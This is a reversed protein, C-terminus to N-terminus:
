CCNTIGANFDGTNIVGTNIVGANIVGANIVGVSYFGVFVGCVTAVYLWICGFIVWCLWIM